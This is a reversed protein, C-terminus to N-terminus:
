SAIVAGVVAARWIPQIGRPRGNELHEVGTEFAAFAREYLSEAFDTSGEALAERAAALQDEALEILVQFESDAVDTLSQIREDTVRDPRIVAMLSMSVAKHGFMIARRFHGNEYAEASRAAMRAATDLLHQQRESIDTGDLLGNALEVAKDAM